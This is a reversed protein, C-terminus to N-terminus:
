NQILVILREINTRGPTGEDEYIAALSLDELDVSCYEVRGAAGPVDGRDDSQVVQDLPGPGPDAQSPPFDEKPILVGALVAPNM